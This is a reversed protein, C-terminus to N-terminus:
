FKRRNYITHILIFYYVCEIKNNEIRLFQIEFYIEFLSRLKCKMDNLLRYDIKKKKYSISRICRSFKFSNCTNSKLRLLMPRSPVLVNELRIARVFSSKLRLASRVTCQQKYRFLSRM